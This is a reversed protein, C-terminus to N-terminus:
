QEGVRHYLPTGSVNDNPIVTFKSMILSMVFPFDSEPATWIKITYACDSYM